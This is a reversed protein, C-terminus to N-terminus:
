TTISSLVVSNLGSNTPESVGMAQQMDKLAYEVITKDKSKCILLGITANDQDNALRDDVASIYFNLKCWLLRTRHAFFWRCYSTLLRKSGDFQILVTDVGLCLV